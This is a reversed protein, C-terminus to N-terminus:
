YLPATVGYRLLLQKLEGDERMRQMEQSLLQAIHEAEPHRRSLSIYTKYRESIPATTFSDQLNQQRLSYQLVALNDLTIDGRGRMIMDLMRPLPETGTNYNVQRPHEALWPGLPTTGAYDYDQILQFHLGDLSADSLDPLAPHRQHLAYGMVSWFYAQEPLIVIAERKHNAALLGDIQGSEAYQLARSWPMNRYEVQYGHRALAIQAAEVMFGPKDPADACIMPCWPDAGLVLKEACVPASGLLCALVGLAVIRYQPM